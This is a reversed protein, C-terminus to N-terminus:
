PSRRPDHLHGDKDHPPSSLPDSDTALLKTAEEGPAAPLEVAVRFVGDTTRVHIRGGLSAVARQCLSLGLGVHRGGAGRAADKRWFRAFVADADAPDLGRAPNEFALVAGGGATGTCALRLRGGADAHDVANDLLNAVVVRLRDPDTLVTVGAAIGTPDVSLRRDEATDVFGEWSERLLAGVDVEVPHAVARGEDVRALALLSEVLTGMRVCADRADDLAARTAPDATARAQDLNLRLAALPTRLEHAADSTFARERTFADDLRQLLRNLLDVVPALDAPPAHLEIRRALSRHDLGAIAGGLQRLPRTGLTGIWALVLALVVATAGGVALLLLLLRHAAEDLEDRERAVAITVRVQSTADEAGPRGPLFNWSALLCPKGGQLDGDGVKLGHWRPGDRGPLDRGRLSASRLLVAGDADWLEFHDPGSRKGFRPADAERLTPRGDGDLTVAAAIAAGGSILGRVAEDRLASTVTLQIATGAGGLCLLAALVAGVVIRRRLPWGTARRTM